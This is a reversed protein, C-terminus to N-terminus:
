RPPPAPSTALSNLGRRYHWLQRDRGLARSREAWEAAAARLAAEAPEGRLVAARASALDALYADAGPLRPDLVVRPATLTSAVAEGWRRSDVGAASRPDILGQGLQEQRTPLLPFSRDARIRNSVDPSALYVALDLAAAQRQGQGAAVVGVLWGGGEPLYSPRNIPTAPEYAKRAPEYVKESGPLQAVDVAFSGGWSSAREARDILMAVDGARFAARANEADFGEMGPPGFERLAALARLAEVFPPGDIRPELNDADFLFSYQDRHQGLAAARALFTANALGDADPGLALAIGQEPQGDGDWDRGHFFKALEDLREWTPPPDLKLGAAAADAAAQEHRFATRNMVLVLGSGGLPLAYREPGYRTAQERYVPLVDAFRLTDTPAAQDEGEAPGGPLRDAFEAPPAAATLEEPIRALVGADILEGLKHGPFILVDTGSIADPAMPEPRVTVSGGRTAEWEGRQTGVGALIAADGVAGVVVEVGPFSPASEAPAPGSGSGCGSGLLAAGVVGVLGVGRLLGSGFRLRAM